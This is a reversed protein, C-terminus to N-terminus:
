RVDRLLRLFRDADIFERVAHVRRGKSDLLIVAPLTDAQYKKKLAENEDTDETLDVKAAVFRVLEASVRPDAFTRVELEKCPVCWAAAFDLMVPRGEAHAKHLALAESHIWDVKRAPTLAYNVVGLLGFTCLAVGTTKRLLVGLGGGHLALHIGGLAVGAAVIGLNTFLFAHTSGAWRGLLPVVRSLFFLAAVLMVIGLVSKVTDMWAGSKPLSVAFVALLWFLVGIGLAYTFLLSAGLALNKTTAVLALIGALIPGTCPAAIVGGVMGMAFAGGLGRGGVTALRAQLGAPLRIEWLGLLSLALAVFLAAMPVVVWPSALLTGFAFGLLAALVGMATYMTAMGLVYSTALAFAGLRGAQKGGFIGITIPIMPYVCPTLSTLVGGCFVLVFAWPLGRALAQELNM